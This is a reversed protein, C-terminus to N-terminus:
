HFFAGKKVELEQIKFKMGDQRTKANQLKQKADKVASSGTWKQEIDSIFHPPLM